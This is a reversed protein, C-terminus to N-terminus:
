LKVATAPLMVTVPVPPIQVPAVLVSKPVPDLQDSPLTGLPESSIVM